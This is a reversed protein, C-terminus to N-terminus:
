TEASEPVLGRTDGSCAIMERSGDPEGCLQCFLKADDLARPGFFEAVKVGPNDRHFVKASKTSRSDSPIKYIPTGDWNSM